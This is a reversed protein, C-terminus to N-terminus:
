GGAVAQVILIESGPAAEVSTIPTTIPVMDGDVYVSVFPLLSFSETVLRGVLGPCRCHIESIVEHLTGSPVTFRTQGSTFAALTRTLVVHTDLM